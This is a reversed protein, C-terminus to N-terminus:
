GHDEGKGSAEDATPRIGTSGTFDLMRFLFYRFNDPTVKSASPGVVSQLAAPSEFRYDRKEDTKLSHGRPVLRVSEWTTPLPVLPVEVNRIVVATMEKRGEERALWGRHLGDVLLAGEEEWVEVIPPSIVREDQGEAYIVRGKLDFIDLRARKLGEQLSQLLDLQEQLVYKALPILEQVQVTEVAITADLYPRVSTDGKIPVQRLASILARTPEVEKIEIVLSGM